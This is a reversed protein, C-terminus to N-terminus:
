PGPSRASGSGTALLLLCAWYPVAVSSCRDSSTSSVPLFRLVSCAKAGPGPRM